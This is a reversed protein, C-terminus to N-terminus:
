LGQEEVFSYFAKEKSEDGAKVTGVTQTYVTYEEEGDLRFAKDCLAQDYAGIGCTGLGLAACALYLNEGVHGMDAMILKHAFIGYRWESRYPVFSWYFVVNAKAAWRQGCLSEEAFDLLAQPDEQASLLELQHTMPLYHYMGPVLGEVQRVLLYTEFPHRAGGAPVTRLTAYSKGRIDKVGQTGWLLFSLQLLSMDEQTYVRSSKRKLLLQVLNDEMGLDEFDRPLDIPNGAMPAKVLPPQPRKLEQDTQYGELGNREMEMTDRSKLFDRGQRTIEWIKKEDM